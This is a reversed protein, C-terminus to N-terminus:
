RTRKKSRIESMKMRHFIHHCLVGVASCIVRLSVRDLRMAFFDDLDDLEYNFLGLGFM